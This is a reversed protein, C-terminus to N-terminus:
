SNQAENRFNLVKDPGIRFSTECSQHLIPAEIGQTLWKDSVIVRCEDWLGKDLCYQLLKGGGEIFISALGRQYLDRLILPLEDHHAYPVFSTQSFDRDQRDRGLVITPHQDNLVHHSLPIRANRDFIIRTPSPGFFLRNDLRPNDVIATNTGVLIGDCEARWKHVLRDSLSSSIKIREGDRGILGDRSQAWKLILYPRKQTISTRFSRLLSEGQDALLGSQCHVGENRLQDLSSGAIQPNPDTVCVTVKKINHKLILDRCPPTKGHINCPELSVYLEDAPYVPLSGLRTICDAEAHPGGFKRYYGESRIADGSLLLAGVCPNAGNTMHGLHALDLCRRM